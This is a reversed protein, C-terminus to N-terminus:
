GPQQLRQWPVLDRVGRQKGVDEVDQV